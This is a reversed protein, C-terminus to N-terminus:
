RRAPEARLRWAKIVWACALVALAAGALQCALLVPADAPRVGLYSDTLTRAVLLAPNALSLAPTALYVLALAVGATLATIARGRQAALGAALVFVFTAAFTGLWVAAGSMPRGAHQVADMEFAAQAVAVGAIAGVIQAGAICAAPEVGERAEIADALSLAPNFRGGSVAMLLALAVGGTLAILADAGLPLQGPFRGALLGAGVVLGSFVATGAVEAALQRLERWTM